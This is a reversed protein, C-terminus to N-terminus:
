PVSTSEGGTAIWWYVILVLVAVIVVALLIRPGVDSGYRFVPQEANWDRAEFSQAVLEAWAVADEPKPEAAAPM